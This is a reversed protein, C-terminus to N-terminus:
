SLKHGARGPGAAHTIEGLECGTRTHPVYRDCDRKLDRDHTTGNVRDPQPLRHRIARSVPATAQRGAPWDISPRISGM